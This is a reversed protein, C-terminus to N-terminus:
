LYEGPIKQQDMITQSQIHKIEAHFHMQRTQRTSNSLNNDIETACFYGSLEFVKPPIKIMLLM